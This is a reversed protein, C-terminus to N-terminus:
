NSSKGQQKARREAEQQSRVPVGSRFFDIDTLRRLHLM